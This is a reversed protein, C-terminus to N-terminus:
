WVGEHRPTQYTGLFFRKKIKAQAMIFGASLVKISNWYGKDGQTNDNMIEKRSTRSIFAHVTEGM